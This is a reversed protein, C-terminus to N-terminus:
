LKIMKLTCSPTKVLYLGISMDSVDIPQDGMAEFSRILRGDIAYISITQPGDLNRLVMVDHTPNPMLSVESLHHEAQGVTEECTIKRIDEMRIKVIDKAVTSEIVLFTNDEFYIRADGDMSYTQTTGNIMSVIMQTSQATGHICLGMAFVLLLLGHKLLQKM